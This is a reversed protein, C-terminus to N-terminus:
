GYRFICCGSLIISVGCMAQALMSARRLSTPIIASFIAEAIFYYQIRNREPLATYVFLSLELRFRIYARVKILAPYVVMVTARVETCHTRKIM